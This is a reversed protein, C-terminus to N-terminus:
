KQDALTSAIGITLSGLVGILVVFCNARSKCDANM